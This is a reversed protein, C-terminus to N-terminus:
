LKKKSNTVAQLKCNEVVVAYDLMIQAKVVKKNNHKQIKARIQGVIVVKEKQAVRRDLKKHM